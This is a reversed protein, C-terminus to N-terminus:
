GVVVGTVMPFKLTKENILQKKMNYLSPALGEYHAPWGPDPGIRYPM